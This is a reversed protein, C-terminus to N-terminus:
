DLFLTWPQFHSFPTVDQNIFQRPVDEPGVKVSSTINSLSPRCSRPSYFIITSIVMDKRASVLSPLYVIVIYVSPHKKVCQPLHTLPKFNIYKSKNEHGCM